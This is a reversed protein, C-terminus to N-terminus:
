PKTRLKYSKNRFTKTRTVTEGVRKKKWLFYFSSFYLFSFFKLLHAKLKISIHYIFMGQYTSTRTLSIAKLKKRNEEIDVFM